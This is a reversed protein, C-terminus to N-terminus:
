INKKGKLFVLFKSKLSSSGEMDLFQQDLSPIIDNQIQLWIDAVAEINKLDFKLLLNTAKEYHHRAEWLSKVKNGGSNLAANVEEQKGRALFSNAEAVDALLDLKSKLESADTKFTRLAVSSQEFVEGAAEYIDAIDTQDKKPSSRHHIVDRNFDDAIKIGLDNLDGGDEWVTVPSPQLHLPYKEDRVQMTKATEIAAVFALDTALAKLAITEITPLPRPISPM